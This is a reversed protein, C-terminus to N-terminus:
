KQGDWNQVRNSVIAASRENNVASAVEGLREPWPASYVNLTETAIAHGLQAQPIKVDAGNAIAIRGCVHIGVHLCM